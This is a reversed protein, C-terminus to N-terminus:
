AVAKASLREDPRPAIAELNNGTTRMGYELQAQRALFAIGDEIEPSLPVQAVIGTGTKQGVAPQTRGHLSAVEARHRLTRLKLSDRMLAEHLESGFEEVTQQRQDPDKQLAKNL